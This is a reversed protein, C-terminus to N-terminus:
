AARPTLTETLIAYIASSDASSRLKATVAGDRLARSVRALARLHDAGADEPALLAFVLDVPQEDPSDFDIPKELRVFVGRITTLGDLRAHPAAVGRGMGTAGLRERDLLAEFVRRADLGYAEAARAAIEQFLQKKSSARLHCGVAEIALIDRIEM